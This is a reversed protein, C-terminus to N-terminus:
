YGKVPDIPPPVYAAPARDIIPPTTRNRQVYAGGHYASVIALVVAGVDTADAATLVQHRTLLSLLPASAAAAITLGRDITHKGIM